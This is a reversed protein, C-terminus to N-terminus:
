IILQMKYYCAYTILTDSLANHYPLNCEETYLTKYLENLKPKKKYSKNYKNKKIISCINTGHKM